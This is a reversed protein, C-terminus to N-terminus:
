DYALTIDVNGIYTDAKTTAPITLVGGIHIEYDDATAFVTSGGSGTSNAAINSVTLTDGTTQGTLTADGSSVTVSVSTTNTTIGILGSNGATNVTTNGSSSMTDATVTTGTGDTTLAGSVDLTFTDGGPDPILTGFDLDSENAATAAEVITVRMEMPIVDDAYVAKLSVAM